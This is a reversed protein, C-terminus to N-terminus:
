EEMFRSIFQTYVMRADTHTPIFHGGEHVYVTAPPDFLELVEESMEAQIVEDTKGYIVLAPVSSKFAYVKQHQKSRSFFPAVLITFKPLTDAFDCLNHEMMLQLLLAFAAGQSFALVGDFPNHSRIFDRLALVSESFGLDCDSDDQAKFYKDPRSFWWAFGNDEPISNPANFFEFDCLKKLNKRFAGTKERFLDSTQRYGHFCLIKLKGM